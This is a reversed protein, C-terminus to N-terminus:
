RVRREACWRRWMARYADEVARTYLDGNGLPAALLRDRLEARLRALRPVENALAVAAGVYDEVSGAVLNDLGFQHMFSGSIRGPIREGLLTVTPVGMLLAEVTTIGGGQPFPDLAIDVDGHAALHGYQDTGGRVEIRDPTVGHAGFVRRITALNEASDLSTSKLVIRSGPVAAVIRAWTAVSELTLKSWRNFSGFTVYGRATAPSPTVDPLDDPPEYTLISPLEIIEEAYYRRHEPPVTVRDALFYDITDLGTGTAYGWATAQVPAPRRAFVLLRNGASYASLDVLIDIEDARILEATAEDSMGLTRRWRTAAAEFRATFNDELATESYCTVEVVSPDHRPLIPLIAHAASHRRFDGSVYGVRLRREPDPVNAHPRIKAALPAAHEVQFRRREAYADALTTEPHLDRVFILNAHAKVFGPRLDIARRFSAMAGDLDGSLHSLIALSHHTESCAPRLAIARRLHEEAAHRHGTQRYLDGLHRLADPDDARLALLRKGAEIAEDARGLVLLVLGYSRLGREHDPELDLARELSARAEDPRGLDCLASGLAAHADACDPDLELARHFSDLAEVLQGTAWLVLGVRQHAAVPNPSVEVARRFREAAADPLGRRQLAAGLNLHAELADPQLSLAAELTVVAEEDRGVISLTAGLGGLAGVHAPEVALAGRYASEAEAHRGLAQLANGLNYRAAVHTPAREVVERYQAVAEDLRGLAQLSHALNFRADVHDPDLATARCLVAVAEDGRGLAQLAVGLNSYYGAANPNLAIAQGILEVAVEHREVQHALVGLLHLADPQDPRAQLVQRYLAEAEALQGAQHHRLAAALAAPVDLLPIGSPTPM